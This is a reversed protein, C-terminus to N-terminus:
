RLRRDFDFHLVTESEVPQGNRQAPSFRWGLAAQVVSSVLLKQISNVMDLPTAGVVKGEANISVRVDIGVADPIASRITIPIVPQVRRIPVAGVYEV